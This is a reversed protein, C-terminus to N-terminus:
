GSVASGLAQMIAQSMSMGQGRAGMLSQVAPMLADIMTGQGPQAPNNRQVGGLFSQLFPLLDALSIGQRGQMQTAAQELGDAYYGAAKGEGQERMASAAAALQDGADNSGTQQAADAAKRFAEAM